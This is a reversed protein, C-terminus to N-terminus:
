ECPACVDEYPSEDELDVKQIGPISELIEVISTVAGEDLESTKPTATEGVEPSGSSPEETTGSGRQEGARQRLLHTREQITLGDVPLPPHRRRQPRDAAMPHHPPVPIPAFAM